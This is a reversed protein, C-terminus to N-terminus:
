DIDSTTHIIEKTTSCQYQVKFQYKLRCNSIKALLHDSSVTKNCSTSSLPIGASVNEMYIFVVNSSAPKQLRGSIYLWKWKLLDDLLDEMCIVGYKVLQLLPTCVFMFLTYYVYM